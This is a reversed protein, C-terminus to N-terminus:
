RLAIRLHRLEDEVELPSAVTEAVTARLIERYRRRLRSVTMKLADETMGLRPALEVYSPAMDDGTLFVKVPDFLEGKGSAAVETRLRALAQELVTLAWRREFSKEPSSEDAPNVGYRTNGEETQIPIFIQGGGRKLRHGRKWENALFHKLASLLFSRFRGRERRAEGVFNKELLRAFFEQTLDQADYDSFGGRRVYAYLPPWYTRCLRELAASAEPLDGRGVRLVASWETTAFAGHNRIATSDANSDLAMSVLVNRPLSADM